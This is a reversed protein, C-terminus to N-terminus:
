NGDNSECKMRKLIKELAEISNANPIVMIPNFLILVVNVTAIIFKSVNGNAKVVESVERQMMM